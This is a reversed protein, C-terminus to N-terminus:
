GYKGTKAQDGPWPHHTGNTDVTRDSRELPLHSQHRSRTLEPTIHHRSTPCMGVCAGLANCGAWNGVRELVIIQVGTWPYKKDDDDDDGNWLHVSGPKTWVLIGQSTLEGGLPFVSAACSVDSWRLSSIQRKDGTDVITIQSTTTAM